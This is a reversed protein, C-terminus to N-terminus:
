RGGRPVSLRPIGKVYCGYENFANRSYGYRSADEKWACATGNPCLQLRRGDEMVCIGSRCVNDGADCCLYLSGGATPVCTTGPPCFGDEFNIKDGPCVNAVPHRAPGKTTTQAQAMQCLPLVLLAAIVFPPIM